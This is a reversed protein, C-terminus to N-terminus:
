GCTVRSCGLVQKERKTTGLVEMMVGEESRQEKGGGYHASARGWMGGAGAGSLATVGLTQTAAATGSVVPGTHGAAVEVEVPQAQTSAWAAGVLVFPPAAHRGLVAGAQALHRLVGPVRRLKDDM